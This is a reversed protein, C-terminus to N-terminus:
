RERSGGLTSLFAATMADIQAEEVPSAPAAAPKVHSFDAAFDELTLTDIKEVDAVTGERAVPETPVPLDVM